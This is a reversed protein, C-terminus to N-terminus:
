ALVVGQHRVGERPPHLPPPVEAAKGIGDLMREKPNCTM